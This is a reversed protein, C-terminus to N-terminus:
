SWRAVRRTSKSRTMATWPTSRCGRWVPRDIQMLDDSLNTITVDSADSLRLTIDGLEIEARGGQDVYIRDGTSLPYNITADSWQSDGSVQLSVSGSLFSLRGVRGSPPM